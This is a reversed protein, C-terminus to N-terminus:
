GNKSSNQPSLDARKVLLGHMADAVNALHAVAVPPSSWIGQQNGYGLEKMTKVASTPRNSAGMQVGKPVVNPRFTLHNAAGPLTSEVPPSPPYEPAASYGERSRLHDGVKKPM